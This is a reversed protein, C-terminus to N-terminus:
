ENSNKWSTVKKAIVRQRFQQRGALAARKEVEARVHAKQEFCHNAALELRQEANQWLLDKTVTTRQFIAIKKITKVHNLSHHVHKKNM